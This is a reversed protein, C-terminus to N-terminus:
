WVTAVAYAAMAEGSGTIGLGEETTAKISVATEPLELASAVAAIMQPAYPAIKPREAVLTADINNITFGSSQIISATKSLIETGSMGAYQPDKDPFHRGIDGLACAGLIADCIAHCLVDADSHGLLGKEYPIHVCGLMLPRDEVLRHVDYGMGTRMNVPMDEPTTIKLNAYDGEVVTVPIGIREMLGADDTGSFGEKLANENAKLLLRYDFAQPTQVEYLESRNLTKEATRITNKPTVGPIVAPSTKVAELVRGIVAETVFPRAGDHILVADTDGPLARLANYVSEQRTPGGCVVADVPVHFQSFLSKVYAEDGAPCVVCTFSIERVGCFVKASRILVPLNKYLMYQKPVTGGMRRSAGAAAIIL